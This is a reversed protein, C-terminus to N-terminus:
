IFSIFFFNVFHLNGPSSAIVVVLDFCVIDIIAGKYDELERKDEMNEWVIVKGNEHGTITVVKKDSGQSEETPFNLSFALCCTTVSNIQFDTIKLEGTTFVGTEYTFMYLGDDTCAVFTNTMTEEYKIDQEDVDWVYPKVPRLDLAFGKVFTSLVLSGDRINYILLPSNARV